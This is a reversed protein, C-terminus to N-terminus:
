RRQTPEDLEELDVNHADNANSHAEYILAVEDDYRQRAASLLLGTARQDLAKLDLIDARTPV